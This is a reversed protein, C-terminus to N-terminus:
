REPEKQHLIQQVQMEVGRRALDLMSTAAVDPGEVELNIYKKINNIFYNIIVLLLRHQQVALTRLFKNSISTSVLNVKYFDPETMSHKIKVCFTM